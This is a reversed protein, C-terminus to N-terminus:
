PQIFSRFDNSFFPIPGHHESLEQRADANGSEISQALTSVRGLKEWIRGDIKARIKDKVREPNETRPPAAQLVWGPM